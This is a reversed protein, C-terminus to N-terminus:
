VGGEGHYSCQLTGDAAIRGESLPALRCSLQLFIRSAASFLWNCALEAYCL